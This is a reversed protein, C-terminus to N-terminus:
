KLCISLTFMGTVTTDNSNSLTTNSKSKVCSHIAPNPHWTGDAECVVTIIDEPIFENTCHYSIVSGETTLNHSVFDIANTREPEGCDVPFFFFVMIGYM